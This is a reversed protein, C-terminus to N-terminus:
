RLTGIWNMELSHGLTILASILMNLVTSTLRSLVEESSKPIDPYPQQNMVVRSRSSPSNNKHVPNPELWGWQGNPNLELFVYDGNPTKVLDITGFTLGFTALVRVGTRLPIPFSTPAFAFRAPHPEEGTM